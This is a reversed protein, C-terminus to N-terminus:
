CVVSKPPKFRHVRVVPSGLLVAVVVAGTRGTRARGPVGECGVESLVRGCQGTGDLEDRAVEQEGDIRDVAALYLGARGSFARGTGRLEGRGGAGLGVARGPRLRQGTRRLRFQGQQGALLLAFPEDPQEGAAAGNAQGAGCSRAAGAEEVDDGLVARVEGGVADDAQAAVVARDAIQEVIQEIGDVVCGQVARFPVFQEGADPLDARDDDQVVGLDAAGGEILQEVGRGLAREQDRGGGLHGRRGGVGRQLLDEEATQLTGVAQLQQRTGGAPRQVLVLGVPGAVEPELGLAQRQAEDLRAGQQALAVLQPGPDTGDVLVADELVFQGGVRVGVLEEAGLVAHLDRQRGEPLGGRGGRQEGGPQAGGGAGGQADGDREATLHRVLGM